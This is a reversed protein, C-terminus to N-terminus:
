EEKQDSPDVKSRPLFSYVNYSHEKLGTLCVALGFLSCVERCIMTSGDLHIDLYNVTQNSVFAHVPLSSYTKLPVYCRDGSADISTKLGKFVQTVVTIVSHIFHADDKSFSSAQRCSVVELPHLHILIEQILAIPLDLFAFCDATDSM